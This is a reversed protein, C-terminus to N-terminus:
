ESKSFRSDELPVPIYRTKLSSLTTLLRLSIATKIGMLIFLILLGYLTNIFLYPNNSYFSSKTNKAYPVDTIYGGANQFHSTFLIKGTPSVVISPGNNAVHVMPLRNEVARLVSPIIHQYPQHSSGFWGDNSMAVIVAGKTNKTNNVVLNLVAKAVFTSFTTEYCILPLLMVKKHEMTDYSDGASIENLFDGLYESTFDSLIKNDTIIPLYEGFPIRKIKRYKGASQGEANIYFASNYQKTDGSVQDKEDEFDQFILPVKLGQIQKHFANKVFANDAYGKYQGEPWVILDPKLTSLRKTMEMEPPFTQSYGFLIKNKGLEPIENPQVIGIKLTDWNSIKQEWDDQSIAGYAIWLAIFGLASLSAKHQSLKLSLNGTLLNQFLRYIVINSLTIVFTLGHVGTYEIGQLAILFQMQTEGLHMNFLMPFIAFIATNVIPFLLFEHITTYTKLLKFAVFIIGFIQACYFWYLFALSLSTLDAYGKSIFIFDIIWYKGTAFAITGGMIAFCFTKFFSINQTAFLLPVFAFWAVYFHAHSLFPISILLGFLLTLLFQFKTDKKNNLKNSTNLPM